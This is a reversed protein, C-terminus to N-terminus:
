HDVFDNFQTNDTNVDINLFSSTDDDIDTVTDIFDLKKTLGLDSGKTTGDPIASYSKTLEISFKYSPPPPTNEKYEVGYTM